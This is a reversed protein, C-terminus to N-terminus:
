RDIGGHGADVVVTGFRGVGHSNVACGPLLTVALSALIAVPAFRM